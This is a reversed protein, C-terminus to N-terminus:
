YSESNAELVVKEVSRESVPKERRCSASDCFLGHGVLRFNLGLTWHVLIGGISGNFRLILMFKGFTSRSRPSGGKAASPDHKACEAKGIGEPIVIRVLPCKAAINIVRCHRGLISDIGGIARNWERQWRM